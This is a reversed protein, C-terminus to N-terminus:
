TYRHCEFHNLAYFDGLFVWIKFIASKAIYVPSGVESIVLFLGFFSWEIAIQEIKQIPITYKPHYRTFGWTWATWFIYPLPPYPTNLASNRAASTSGQKLTQRSAFRKLAIPGFLVFHQNKTVGRIKRLSVRKQGIVKSQAATVEFRNPTWTRGFDPLESEPM